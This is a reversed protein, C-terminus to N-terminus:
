AKRLGKEKIYLSLHSKSRFYGGKVMRYLRRYEKEKLKPKEETLKKRLSRVKKLWVTKDGVKAKVTGKRSGTGKRLGKKKQAKIKRARSKSAENEKKKVISGQKVLARIDERTMAQKAKEADVVKVKGIGTKLVKSALSRVKNLEMFM